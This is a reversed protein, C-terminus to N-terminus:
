LTGKIKYVGLAGLTIMIDAEFRTISLNYKICHKRHGVQPGYVRM